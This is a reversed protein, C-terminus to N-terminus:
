KYKALRDGAGGRVLTVAALVSQPFVHDMCVECESTEGFGIPVLLSCLSVELCPCYVSWSPYIITKHLKM